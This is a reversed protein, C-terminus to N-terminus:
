WGREDQSVYTGRSRLWSRAHIVEATDPTPLRSAYVVIELTGDATLGIVEDASVLQGIGVTPNWGAYFFSRPDEDLSSLGVAPGHGPLTGVWSVIANAASRVQAGYDTRISVSLVDWPSVIEGSDVLWTCGDRMRRIFEAPPQVQRSWYQQLWQVVPSRKRALAGVALGAGAVLAIIALPNM